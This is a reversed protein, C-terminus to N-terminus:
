GEGHLSVNACYVRIVEKSNVSERYNYTQLCVCLANCYANAMPCFKGQIYEGKAEAVKRDENSKYM